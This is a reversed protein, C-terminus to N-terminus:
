QADTKIGAREPRLIDTGPGRGTAIMIEKAVIQAKQGKERDVAILKKEGGAAKAVQVVEHNTLVTMHKGLEEKALASVEPEEQPLFQPNRGIITVKSGMASLFHGYE